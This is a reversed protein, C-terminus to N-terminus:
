HMVTCYSLYLIEHFEPQGGINVIHLLTFENSKLFDRITGWDKTIILLHLTSTIEDQTTPSIEYQAATAIEDQTASSSPM